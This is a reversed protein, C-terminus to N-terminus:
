QLTMELLLTSDEKNSVTITEDQIEKGGFTMSKLTQGAGLDEVNVKWEGRSLHLSFTGSASIVARRVVNTYIRRASVSALSQVQMGEPIVLRGPIELLPEAHLEVYLDKDKVEVERRIPDFRESCCVILVYVGPRVDFAFKGDAKLSSRERGFYVVAGVWPPNEFNGTVRGDIRTRPIITNWRVWIPATLTAAMLALSLILLARKM